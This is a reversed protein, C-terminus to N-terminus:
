APSRLRAGPRRHPRPKRRPRARQARRLHRAVNLPRDAGRAAAARGHRAQRRDARWLRAGGGGDGGREVGFGVTLEPLLAKLHLRGGRALIDEAKADMALPRQAFLYQAGDVLEVLTKARERLGPFAARFQARKGEDDLLAAMEPGGPLYPLTKLFTEYLAADDTARMFHGNMNELQAYDFRSASRGVAGLDFAEIM